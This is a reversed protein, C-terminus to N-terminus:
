KVFMNGITKIFWSKPVLRSIFYLYKQKGIIIQPKLKKKEIFRTMKKVAYEVSMRKDEHSDVHRTSKEVSDGYRSNTAFEKVRNKTFATKVEGPCIAAVQISTNKLEMRLGDTIMSVAAKSACYYSRFPLPFLACTSSINIIKSKEKMLPLARKTVDVLAFFNLDFQKKIEKESTLEVAGSLGQGACNILIDFKENELKKFAADLADKNTIDCPLDESHRSLNFVKDGANLFYQKLGAGIGSSGGTILITRNMNEGLNM